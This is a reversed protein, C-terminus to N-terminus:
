KEEIRTEVKEIVNDETKLVKLIIKKDFNEEEFVIETWESPFWETEAMIIYSLTENIYEEKIGIDERHIEFEELIDDILVSGVAEIIKDSKRRIFIEERDTEDKIDGFVEELVDEMTVIGATGGYEDFVLAIHRRSKQFQEFLEDLTQTLPIKMIKELDLDKLKENGFGNSKLKFAERFTLVYDVDDTSEGAIPMRSHTNKLFFECAENITMELELFKVNVRPTMVSEAFMERLSLLNKMQRREDEEVEWEEHSMDIFAEVEQYSIKKVFNSGGFMWMVVKIFQEILWSIPFLVFILIRYIPAILLAIQTNYRTCITKPTIEGFLLLIITVATTAVLIWMEEWLWSNKAWQTTVVTTLSATAVNVINNGILITILLRDTNEKIKELSKAWFKKERIFSSIAHKSTTMFAIESGSFFASLFILVIFTIIFFLSDPDM